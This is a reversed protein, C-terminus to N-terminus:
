FTLRLAFQMIRPDRAASVQGTSANTNQRAANFTFGTNVSSFQTHNFANYAEARLMATVKEKVRFEKFLALNWNNCGPGRIAFRPMNGYNLWTQSYSTQGPTLAFPEMFAAVNFYQDFTRQTKPLNPDGIIIPRVGDGGGPSVAPPTKPGAL